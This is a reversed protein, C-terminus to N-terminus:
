FMPSCYGPFFEGSFYASSDSVWPAPSLPSGPGSHPIWALGAWGPDGRAMGRYSSGLASFGEQLCCWNSRAPLAPAATGGVCERHVLWGPWTVWWVSGSPVGQCGGRSLGVGPLFHHTSDKCGGLGVRWASGVRCPLLSIWLRWGWAGSDMRACDGSAPGSAAMEEM